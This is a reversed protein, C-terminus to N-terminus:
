CFDCATKFAFVSLDFDLGFYTSSFFFSSGALVYLSVEFGFCAFADSFTFAGLCRVAEIEQLLVLMGYFFLSLFASSFALSLL